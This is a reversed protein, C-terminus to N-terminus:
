SMGITVMEGTKRDIAVTLFEGMSHPPNPEKGRFTVRWVPRGQETAQDAEVSKAEFTLHQRAIEIARERSIGENKAGTACALALLALLLFLFTHRPQM